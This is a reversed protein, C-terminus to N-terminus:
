EYGKQLIPLANHLTQLFKFFKPHSKGIGAVTGLICRRGDLVCAHNYWDPKLIM